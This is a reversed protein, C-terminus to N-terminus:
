PCHYFPDRIRAPYFAVINVEYITLLLFLVTQITTFAIVMIKTKPGSLAIITEMLPQLLHESYVKLFVCVFSCYAM